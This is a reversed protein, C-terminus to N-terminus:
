AKKLQAYSVRLQRGHLEAGNFEGVARDVGEESEFHVHAYGKSRGTDKDTHLRVRSVSCGEFVAQVEAPTAEFAINGVYAVHYGPQKQAAGTPHATAPQQQTGNAASGNPAGGARGRPQKGAAAAKCREM